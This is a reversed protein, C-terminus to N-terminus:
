RWRRTVRAASIKAGLLLGRPTRPNAAEIGFIQRVGDMWSEKYPDTGVGYDLESIREETMIKRAMERTLISGPSFDKFREDYALKAIIAKGGYALWLQAAAPTDDV